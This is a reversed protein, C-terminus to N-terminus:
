GFSEWNTFEIRISGHDTKLTLRALPKHKTDKLIQEVKLFEQTSIDQTFELHGKVVVREPLEIKM